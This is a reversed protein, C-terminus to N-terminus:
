RCVASYPGGGWPVLHSIVGKILNNDQALNIIEALADAALNFLLPSLHDEQRLGRYTKFYPGVEGNININVKGERVTRMVQDIWLKSFFNRMMVKELFSWRIKDYAKEFDLKLIM